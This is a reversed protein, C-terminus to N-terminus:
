PDAPGKLVFNQVMQLAFEHSTKPCGSEVLPWRQRNKPSPAPEPTADVLGAFEGEKGGLVPMSVGHSKLANNNIVDHYTYEGWSRM